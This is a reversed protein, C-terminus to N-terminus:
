QIGPKEEQQLQGTIVTVYKQKKDGSDSMQLM